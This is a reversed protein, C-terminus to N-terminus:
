MRRSHSKAPRLDAFRSITRREDEEEEGEEEEEGKEEKKRRKKRRRRRRRGNWHQFLFQGTVNEDAKWYLDWAKLVVM